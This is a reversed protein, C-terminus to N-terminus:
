INEHFRKFCDVKIVLQQRPIFATRYWGTVIQYAEMTEYFHLLLMYYGRDHREGIWNIAIVSWDRSYGASEGELLHVLYYAREVKM